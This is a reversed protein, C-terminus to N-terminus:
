TLFPFDLLKIAFVFFHLPIQASLQIPWESCSSIFLYWEKWKIWGQQFINRWNRFLKTNSVNVYLYLSKKLCTLKSINGNWFSTNMYTILVHNWEATLSILVEALGIQANFGKYSSLLDYYRSSKSYKAVPKIQWM